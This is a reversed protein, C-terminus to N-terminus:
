TLFFVVIGAVGALAFVVGGIRCSLRYFDSPESASYSKWSETLEFWIEPFFAMVLGLALLLLGMLLLM